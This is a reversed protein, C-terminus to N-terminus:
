PMPENWLHNGTYNHKLHSVDQKQVPCWYWISICSHTTAFLPFSIYDCTSSLSWALTRAARLLAICLFISCGNNEFHGQCKEESLTVKKKISCIVNRCRYWLAFSYICNCPCTVLFGWPLSLGWGWVVVGWSQISQSITDDKRRMVTKWPLARFDEQMRSQSPPRRWLWVATCPRTPKATWRGRWCARCGSTETRKRHCFHFM